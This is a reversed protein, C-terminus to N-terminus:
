TDYLWGSPSWAWHAQIPYIIGTIIMAFLIYSGIIINIFEHIM